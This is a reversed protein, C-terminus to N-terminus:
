EFAKGTIARHKQMAWEARYDLGIVLAFGAHPEWRLTLTGVGVGAAVESAEAFRGRNAEEDSM